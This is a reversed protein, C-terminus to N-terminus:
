WGFQWSPWEGEDAAKIAADLDSLPVVVSGPPAQPQNELWADAEEPSDFKPPSLPPIALEGNETYVVQRDGVADLGPAIEEDHVVVRLVEGSDSDVQATVTVMFMVNLIM